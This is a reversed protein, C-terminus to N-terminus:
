RGLGRQEREPPIEIERMPFGPPAMEPPVVRDDPIQILQGNEDYFDYDPSFMLIPEIRQGDDTAQYHRVYGEPLEFDEPVALGVMPPSTGPPNFAGLGEYIGQRHLEEIVEGMTPNQGPPIFDRLDLSTDGEPEPEKKPPPPTTRRPTMSRGSVTTIKSPTSPPKTAPADSAKREERMAEAIAKDMPSPKARSADPAPMQTTRGPTVVYGASCAVLFLALAKYLLATRTGRSDRVIRVGDTNGSSSAGNSTDGTM